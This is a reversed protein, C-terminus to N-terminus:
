RQGWLRFRSTTSRTSQAVTEIRHNAARSYLEIRPARSRPSGAVILGDYAFTDNDFDAAALV